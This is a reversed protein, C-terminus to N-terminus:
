RTVVFTEIGLRSQWGRRQLDPETHEEVPFGVCLYAVLRWDEAVELTRRVEEPDLISVWGLGVGHARAVLWLTQVAGVVSYPLMEPMTDQGLGHGAETGEDCFVAIQEPADDLGSLKLTAYLKAKEGHYNALADANCREFNERIAKRRAPDRVIVFRWPQSNGVSPALAARALLDDLLGDPLPATRFRRVDRRWQILQDLQNRFTEDFAPPASGPPAPPHDVM